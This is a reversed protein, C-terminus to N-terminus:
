ENLGECIPETGVYRGIIVWRECISNYFFITRHNELTNM